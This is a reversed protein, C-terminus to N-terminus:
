VLSDVKYTSDISLHEYIRLHEFFIIMLFKFLQLKNKKFYVKECVRLFNSM